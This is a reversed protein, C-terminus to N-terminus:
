IPIPFRSKCSNIMNAVDEAVSLKRCFFQTKQWQDQEISISLQKFEEGGCKQHKKQDEIENMMLHEHQHVLKALFYETGTILGWREMQTFNNLFLRKMKGFSFVMILDTNQRM